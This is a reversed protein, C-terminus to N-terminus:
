NLVFDTNSTQASDERFVSTPTQGFTKPEQDESMGIQRGELIETQCAHWHSNAVDQLELVQIHEFLVSFQFMTLSLTDGRGVGGVM